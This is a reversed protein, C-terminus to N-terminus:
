SAVEPLFAFSEAHVREDPIRLDECAMRVADVLHEPGCVFVTREAVDPVLERLRPATVPQQARSGTLLHVTAGHSQVVQQLEERFLVDDISRARYVVVAQGYGRTEGLIARVPAIGVGGAVLLLRQGGLEGREGVHFRGYPGEVVIRTGPRLRALADSHAGVQRVTLRLCQSNRGVSVSYPHAAWWLGPALFRWLLYQGGRVDLKELDRGSVYVSVVGPAETVVSEVRLSHRASRALPVVVRGWVVLGAVGYTMVTWALSLVPRGVFAAGNALQHGWALIVAAYTALHLVWWTAYRMTRRVQPIALVGVAMFAAFGLGAKLMEPYGTLLRYLETVPNVGDALAYGLTILSAHAVLLLLTTTGLRRHAHVMRDHGIRRELSPLRAALVISLMAAYTGLLGTLRGLFTAWGGPASAFGPAETVWAIGALVGAGLGVLALSTDVRRASLRTRTPIATLPALTSAM